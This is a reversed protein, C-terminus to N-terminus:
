LVRWLNLIPLSIFALNISSHFNKWDKVFWASVGEFIYLLMSAKETKMNMRSLRRHHRRYISPYPFLLKVISCNGVQLLLIYLSLSLSFIIISHPFREKERERGCERKREMFYTFGCILTHIHISYYSCWYRLPFDRKITEKARKRWTGKKNWKMGEFVDGM